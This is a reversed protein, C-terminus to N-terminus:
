FILGPFTKLARRVTGAPRVVMLDVADDASESINRVIHPIAPLAPM